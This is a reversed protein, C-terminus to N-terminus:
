LDNKDVKMKESFQLYSRIDSYLILAKICSNKLFYHVRLLLRRTWKIIEEEEDSRRYNKQLGGM